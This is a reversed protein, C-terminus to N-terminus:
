KEQRDWSRKKRSVARRRKGSMEWPDEEIYESPPTWGLVEGEKAKWVWTEEYWVEGSWTTSRVAFCLNLWKVANLVTETSYIAQIVGYRGDHVPWKLTISFETLSSTSRGYHVQQLFDILEHYNDWFYGVKREDPHCSAIIYITKLGTLDRAANQHTLYFLYIESFCLWDLWKISLM